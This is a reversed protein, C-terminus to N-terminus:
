FDWNIGFQYLTNKYVYATINSENSTYSYKGTFGVNKAVSYKIEVGYKFKLDERYNYNGKSIYNKKAHYRYAYSAFFKTGLNNSIRPSISLETKHIRPSFSTFSEANKSQFDERVNHEYQYGLSFNTRYHLFNLQHHWRHQRGGLHNYTEDLIRIFDNDLEMNYQLNSLLYKQASFSLRTIAQYETGDSTQRIYSSGFRYQWLAIQNHYNANILLNTTNFYSMKQYAMYFASAAFEINQNINLKSDAQLLLFNDGLTDSDADAIYQYQAVNDNYGFETKLSTQFTTRDFPSISRDQRDFEQTNKQKNNGSKADEIKHLLSFAMKLINPNNNRAIVRNLWYSAQADNELKIEVLALNYFALENLDQNEILALFSNRADIFYGLKYNVVGLNYHLKPNTFKEHQAQEFLTKASKLNGEKVAFIAQTFAPNPPSTVSAMSLPAYSLCILSFIALRYTM